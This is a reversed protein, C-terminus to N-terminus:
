FNLNHIANILDQLEPTSESPPPPNSDNDIPPDVNDIDTDDVPNPREEIVKVDNDRERELEQLEKEVTPNTVGKLQNIKRMLIQAMDAITSAMVDKRSGEPLDEYIMQLGDILQGGQIVDMPTNADIPVNLYTLFRSM